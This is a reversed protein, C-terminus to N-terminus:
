GGMRLTPTIIRRRHASHVAAIGDATPWRTSM